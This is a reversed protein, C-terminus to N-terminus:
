SLYVLLRLSLDNEHPAPNPDTIFCFAPKPDANFHFAPDPDAYFHHPDAVMSFFSIKVLQTPSHPSQLFIIM